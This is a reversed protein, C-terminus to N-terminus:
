STDLRIQIRAATAPDVAEAGILDNRLSEALRRYYNRLSGLAKVFVKRLTGKIMLQNIAHAIQLLYYFNEAAVPRRSYAHELEYGHHKQVDFGQNEIKWRQRGGQNALTVVSACGVPLNTLWAYYRQKAQGRVTEVCEFADLKHGQHELGNVWAFSQHTDADPFHEARNAGELDRLAQYEEFLAPISGQKFTVIFNWRNQRCVDFFAACAYLADGLLTVALRPYRGKLKPALRQFARLECDQKEGGDRNDIFETAVSFALGGSTVLKAELVPHYYLTAGNSLSRTLCYPCHRRHFRLQGTADLAILFAGKL